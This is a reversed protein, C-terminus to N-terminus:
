DTTSPFRKKELFRERSLYALSLNTLVLTSCQADELVVQKQFALASSLKGIARSEVPIPGNKVKV